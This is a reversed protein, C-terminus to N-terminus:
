RFIKIQLRPCSIFERFIMSINRTSWFQELSVEMKKWNYCLFGVKGTYFIHLSFSFFFPVTTKFSVSTLSVSSLLCSHPRQSAMRFIFETFLTRIHGPQVRKEARGNVLVYRCPLCPLETPLPVSQIHSGSNLEWLMYLFPLFLCVWFAM